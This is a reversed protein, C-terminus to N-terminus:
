AYAARAIPADGPPPSRCSRLCGVQQRHLGIRPRHLPIDDLGLPFAPLAAAAPGPPCPLSHRHRGPRRPRHPQLVGNAPANEVGVRSRQRQARGVLRAALYASANIATHAMVPAVVSGGRLRLGAFVAGIAATAATTGALAVAHGLWGKPLVDAAPNTRMMDVTPLLHWLGFLGSTWAIATAPLHSRSLVGLLVGRFVVEEPLATAFPIRVATEYTAAGRSASLVREDAFFRRTAPAAACLCVVGVAGTSAVVGM